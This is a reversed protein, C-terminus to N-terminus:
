AGGAPGAGVRRGELGGGVGRAGAGERGREGLVPGRARPPASVEEHLAGGSPAVRCGPRPRLEPEATLFWSRGEHRCSPRPRECSPSPIRPSPRRFHESVEPAADRSAPRSRGPPRPARRDDPYRRRRRSLLDSRPKHGIERATRRAMGGYSPRPGARGGVPKAAEARTVRLSEDRIPVTTVTADSGHSALVSQSHRSRGSCTSAANAEGDRSFRAPFHSRRTGAGPGTEPALPPVGLPQSAAGAQRGEVQAPSTARPSLTALARRRLTSMAQHARGASEAKLAQPGAPSPGRPAAPRGCPQTPAPPAPPPSREPTRAAPTSCRAPNPRPPRRPGTNEKRPRPVSCFRSVRPGRARLESSLGSTLLAAPDRDGRCTEPPHPRCEHTRRGTAAAVCSDSRVHRRPREHPGAANEHKRQTATKM